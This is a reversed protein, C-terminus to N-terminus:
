VQTMLLWRLQYRHRHILEKATQDIWEFVNISNEKNNHNTKKNTNSIISTELYIWALVFKINERLRFVCFVTLVTWTSINKVNLSLNYLYNLNRIVWDISHDLFWFIQLVINPHSIFSYKIRNIRTLFRNSSSINSWSILFM